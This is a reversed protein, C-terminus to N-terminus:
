FPTVVSELSESGLLSASLVFSFGKFKRKDKLFTLGQVMSAGSLSGQDLASSGLPLASWAPSWWEHLAFFLVFSSFSFCSVYFGLFVWCVMLTLLPSNAREPGWLGPWGM